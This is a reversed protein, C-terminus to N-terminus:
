RRCRSGSRRRSPTLENRYETLARMDRSIIGSIRRVREREPHQAGAAEPVASFYKEAQEAANSYAKMLTQLREADLLPPFGQRNPKSLERLQEDLARMGALYEQFAPNDSQTQSLRSYLENYETGPM